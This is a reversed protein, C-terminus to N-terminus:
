RLLFFITLVTLFVTLVALGLVSTLTRFIAYKALPNRGVSIISGYISAYILSMLAMSAVILVVLSLVIRITSIERGVLSQAAQQLTNLQKSAGSQTATTVGIGVRVFGIKVQKTQGDKDTVQETKTGADSTDLETQALGIVRLGAQAKMGVGNFPSVSIPDGVKISGNLDSVLVNASGSTAVQVAGSQADVAILSDDSAVAVGILQRGNTSNALVVYDSRSSDLSVLSGDPVDGAAGFSHSINASSASAPVLGVVLLTAIVAVILLEVSRM